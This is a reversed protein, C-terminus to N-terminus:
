CEFTARISLKLLCSYNWQVFVFIINSVVFSYKWLIERMFFYVRLVICAFAYFGSFLVTCNLQQSLISHTCSSSIRRSIECVLFHQQLFGLAEWWLFGAFLSSCLCPLSPVTKNCSGHGSVRSHKCYTWLRTAIACMSACVCVCM